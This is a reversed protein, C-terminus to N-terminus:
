PGGQKEVDDVVMDPRLAAVQSFVAGVKRVLITGGPSRGHIEVGTAAIGHVRNVIEPSPMNQLINFLCRVLGRSCAPPLDM